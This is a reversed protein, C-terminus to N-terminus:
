RAAEKRWIVYSYVLPVVGAVLSVGVIVPVLASAPLWAAGILAIGGIVFLIGGLRHTREWVRDNTLTWPTRIGFMWNPRARPMVNGIVVFLAGVMLPTMRQMSVPLGLSTGLMVVHLAVMAAIVADIVLEFSSRFKAYNAGKPDIAPLMPLALALVATIMPLFFAGFLRSSYGNVEGDAGWHTPIQDPLRRWVAISFGFAAGVLAWRFWKRM